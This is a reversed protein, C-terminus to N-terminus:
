PIVSVTGRMTPHISCHYGHEGTTSLTTQFSSGPAMNGSNFSGDDAIINHTVGATGYVGSGRDDNFWQVVGGSALSVSLPNPSFAATGKTQAGLVISIGNPPLQRGGGPPPNSDTTDSGCGTAVALLVLGIGIDIRRM